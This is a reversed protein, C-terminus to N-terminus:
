LRSWVDYTTYEVDKRDKKGATTGVNGVHVNYLIDAKGVQLLLTIFTTTVKESSTAASVAEGCIQLNKDFREIIPPQREQLLIM